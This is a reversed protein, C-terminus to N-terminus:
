RHHSRSLLQRQCQCLRILMSYATLDERYRQLLPTWATRRRNRFCGSEAIRSNSHASRDLCLSSSHRIRESSDSHRLAQYNQSDRWQPDQFCDYRSIPVLHHGNCPLIYYYYHSQKSRITEDVFDRTQYLQCDKPRRHIWCGCESAWACKHLCHTWDLSFLFSASGKKLDSRKEREHCSNM